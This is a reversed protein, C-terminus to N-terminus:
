GVRSHHAVGYGCNTARTGLLEQLKADSLRSLALAVAPRNLAPVDIFRKFGRRVDIAVALAEQDTPNTAIMRGEPAGM